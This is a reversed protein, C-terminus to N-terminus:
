IEDTLNSARMMGATLTAKATLGLCQGFQGKAWKPKGILEGHNGNLSSDKAMKRTGEDFLWIGVATGM